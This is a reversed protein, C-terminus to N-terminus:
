LKGKIKDKRRKEKVNEEKNRGAKKKGGFSM